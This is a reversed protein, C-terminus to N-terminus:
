VFNQIIFHFGLNQYTSIKELIFKSVVCQFKLAFDIPIIIMTKFSLHPFFNKIAFPAHVIYSYFDKLKGYLTNIPFKSIM